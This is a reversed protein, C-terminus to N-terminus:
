IRAKFSSELFVHERHCCLLTRGHEETSEGIATGSQNERGDYSGAFTQGKTSKRGKQLPSKMQRTKFVNKQLYFLTKLVDGNQKTLRRDTRRRTLKKFSFVGQQQQSPLPHSTLLFFRHVQSTHLGAIM